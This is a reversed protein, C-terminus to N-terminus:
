ASLIKKVKNNRKVTPKGFEDLDKADEYSDEKLYLKVQTGTLVDTDPPNAEAENSGKGFVAELYRKIHEWSIKNPKGDNQRLNIFDWFERGRLDEPEDIKTKMVLTKGNGQLEQEFITVTYLGEPFPERTTFVSTLDAGEIIPM